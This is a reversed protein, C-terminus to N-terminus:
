VGCLDWMSCCLDFIVRAVGFIQSLSILLCIFIKKFFFEPSANYYKLLDIFCFVWYNIWIYLLIWCLLLPVNWVLLPLQNSNLRETTDLGQLCLLSLLFMQGVFLSPKELPVLPVSGAQWHPLRLLHRNSGQTLFIGQLLAHCGVGTNKGPSDWPCPLRAPQLGSWLQLHIFHSLM